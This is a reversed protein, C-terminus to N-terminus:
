DQASPYYKDDNFVQREHKDGQTLQEEEVIQKDHSEVWTNYSLM